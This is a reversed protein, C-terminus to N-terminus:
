GTPKAINTAALAHNLEKPYMIEMWNSFALTEPTFRNALRAHFIVAMGMGIQTDMEDHFSIDEQEDRAHKLSNTVRNFRKWQIEKMMANTLTIFEDNFGSEYLDYLIRLTARSLTHVGLWDEDAFFLRISLDLQRRAAELRSIARM